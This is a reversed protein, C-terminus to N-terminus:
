AEGRHRTSENNNKKKLSTFILWSDSEARGVEVQSCNESSIM